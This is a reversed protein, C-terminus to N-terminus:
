NPSSNGGSSVAAALGVVAVLGLLPLLLPVGVLENRKAVKPAAPASHQMVTDASAVPKFALYAPRQDAAAASTAVMAACLAMGLAFKKM